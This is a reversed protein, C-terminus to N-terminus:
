VLNELVQLLFVAPDTGPPSEGIMYYCDYKDYVSNHYKRDSDYVCYNLGNEKLKDTIEQKTEYLAVTLNGAFVADDSASDKRQFNRM